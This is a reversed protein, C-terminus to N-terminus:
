RKHKFFLTHKAALLDHGSSSSAGAQENTELCLFRTM